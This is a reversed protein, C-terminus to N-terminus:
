GGVVLDFLSISDNEKLRYDQQRVLGGVIVIAGQKESINLHSLLDKIEAGEPLEIEMRDRATGESFKPKLTGFFKIKLKV